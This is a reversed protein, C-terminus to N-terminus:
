AGLGDFASGDMWTTHLSASPPSIPLKVALDVEPTKPGELWRALKPLGVPFARKTLALYMLTLVCLLEEIHFLKLFAAVCFWNHLSADGAPM